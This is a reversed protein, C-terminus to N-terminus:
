PFAENCADGGGGGREGRDLRGINCWEFWELLEDGSGRGRGSPSIRVDAHRTSQTIHTQRGNILINIKEKTGIARSLYVKCM